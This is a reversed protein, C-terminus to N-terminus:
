LYQSAHREELDLLIEIAEDHRRTNRQHLVLNALQQARSTKISNHIIMSATVIEDRTLGKITQSSNAVKVVVDFTGDANENVKMWENLENM